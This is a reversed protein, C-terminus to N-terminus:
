AQTALVIPSGTSFAVVLQTKGQGNDRAYLRMQNPDPPVPPTIKTMQIFGNNLVMSGVSVSIGQRKMSLLGDQGITMAEQNLDTGDPCTNFTMQTGRAFSTVANGTNLTRDVGSCGTLNKNAVDVGTYNVTVDTGDTAHVLVRGVAPLSTVSNLPVTTSGAVIGSRMTTTIVGTSQTLQAGIFAAQHQGTTNTDWDNTYAGNDGYAQWYIRGITEGNLLGTPPTNYSGGDPGARRIALDPSDGIDALLLGKSMLKFDANDWVFDPAEARADARGGIINARVTMPATFTNATTLNAKNILDPITPNPYTGALNGGAVGSPTRANTMRADNDGVAIPNTASVPATSLKSIGKTTTSADDGAAAFAKPSKLNMLTSAGVVSAAFVGSRVLFEKRDMEKHLVSDATLDKQKPTDQKPNKQLRKFHRYIM